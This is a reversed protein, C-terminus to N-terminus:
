QTREKIVVSAKGPRKDILDVLVDRIENPAEAIVSECLRKDISYSVAKKIPNWKKPINLDMSEYLKKNLSYVFPTKIEIKWIGHDYTKQGEHDHDLTSIIM